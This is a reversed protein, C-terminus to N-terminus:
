KEKHCPCECDAMYAPGLTGDCEDHDNAQCEDSIDLDRDRM